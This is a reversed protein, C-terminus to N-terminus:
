NIMVTFVTGIVSTEKGGPASRRLFYADLRSRHYVLIGFGVQARNQNWTGASLNDFFENSAYLHRTHHGGFAYDATARNRYRYPQNSYALLREFRNVDSFTWRRIVWSPTVAVLPVHAVQDVQPLDAFLYGASLSWHRNLRLAGIAGTAFFQPNPMKSDFRSLSPILLNSRKFNLSLDVEPWWQISQCHGAAGGLVTTLLLALACRKLSNAAVM